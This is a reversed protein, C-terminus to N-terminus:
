SGLLLLRGVHPGICDLVEALPTGTAMAVCLLLTICGAVVCLLILRSRTLV